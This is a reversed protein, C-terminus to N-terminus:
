QEGFKVILLYQKEFPLLYALRTDTGPRSTRRLTRRHHPRRRRYRARCVHGDKSHGVEVSSCSCRGCCSGGAQGAERRCVVVQAHPLGLQVVSVEAEVVAWRWTLLSDMRSSTPSIQISKINSHATFEVDPDDYSFSHGM